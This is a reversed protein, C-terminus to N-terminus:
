RNHVIEVKIMVLVSTYRLLIYSDIKCNKTNECLVVNSCNSMKIIFTILITKEVLVKLNFPYFRKQLLLSALRIVKTPSIFNEALTGVRRDFFSGIIKNM